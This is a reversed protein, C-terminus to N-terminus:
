KNIDIFEGDKLEHYNDIWLPTGDIDRLILNNEPYKKELLTDIKSIQGLSLLMHYEALNFGAEAFSSTAAVHRINIETIFPKGNEDAKLDVAVIGDMTTGLNKCIIDIAETSTTVIENNNILKGRTINGTIGSPAVKAMFYILREYSAIKIVKGKHYLLHCAFNQGGLYETVLFRNINSNITVWAKAEELNNIKLAGKGSTSGASFDRMWLPFKKFQGLNNTLINKKSLIEFKPIYNTGKLLEYLIGKDIVNKCFKYTPVIYKTPFLHKSWEIVELEPIIVAGDINENKIITNITKAYQDSNSHPVKYIKNYLGEYLGYINDCIDTGIFRTDKFHESKQLSRVVARSTVGCAGTILLNLKNKVIETKQKM